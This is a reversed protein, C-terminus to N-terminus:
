FVGERLRRLTLDAQARLLEARATTASERALLDAWARQALQEEFPTQATGFERVVTEFMASALSVKERLVHLDAAAAHALGFLYPSGLSEAAQLAHDLHRQALDDARLATHLRARFADLEVIFAKPLEVGPPPEAHALAKDPRGRALELQALALLTPAYEHSKPMDCAIAFAKSIASAAQQPLDIRLYLRGLQRLAAVLHPSPYIGRAHTVASEFHRLADSWMGQLMFVNGLAVLSEVRGGEHGAQDRKELASTHSEIAASWECRLGHVLGLVEDCEAAVRHHVEEALQLAEHAHARAEELAGRALELRARAQLANVTRRAGVTAMYEEHADRLHREANQYQGLRLYTIGLSEKIVAAGVEDEAKNAATLALSQEDKARELRGQGGYGLALAQRSWNIAPASDIRLASRLMEEGLEVVKDFRGQLFWSMSKDLQLRARIVESDADAPAGDLEAIGADAAHVAEETKGVKQLAFALRGWTEARDLRHAVRQLTMRCTGICDSWRGLEREAGARGRLAQLLAVQDPDLQGTQALAFAADYNEHASGWAGLVALRSGAKLSYELAKTRMPLDEGAGRFLVALRKSQDDARDGALREITSAAQAHLEISRKEGLNQLVTFRTSEHFFAYSTGTKQLHQARVLEDLEDLVDAPHMCQALESREFTQGVVAAMDLLARAGPSLLALRSEVVARIQTPLPGDRPLKLRWFGQALEFGDQEKWLSVYQHTFLPNGETIRFISSNSESDLPGGLLAAAQEAALEQNFDDLDLKDALRSSVLARIESLVEPTAAEPNLTGIVLLRRRERQRALDGLLGLTDGDADHLDELCLLVPKEVTLRRVASRLLSRYRERMGPATFEHARPVHRLRLHASLEPALAALDGRMDHLLKVAAQPTLALVYEVLAEVFPGFALGERKGHIGGILALVRQRQARAVLEGILASKGVGKPGHIFVLAVQPTTRVAQLKRELIGLQRDRGVFRAPPVPVNPARFAKGKGSGGNLNKVIAVTTQAPRVGLRELAQKHQEYVSRADAARDESSLLGILQEAISKNAPETEHAAALHRIASTDENDAICLEALKLKLELWKQILRDRRHVVWDEEPDDVLLHNLYLADAENLLERTDVEYEARKLLQEFHSADIWVTQDLRTLHKEPHVIKATREEDLGLVDHRM